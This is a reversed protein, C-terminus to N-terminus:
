PKPNLTCEVKATGVEVRGGWMIDGVLNLAYVAGLVDDNIGYSVGVYILNNAGLAPTSTIEGYLNKNWQETGKSSFAYLGGIYRQPPQM